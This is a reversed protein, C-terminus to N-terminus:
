FSYFRSTEVHGHHWQTAVASLRLRLESLSLHDAPGSHPLVEEIVFLNRPDDIGEFYDYSKAISLTSSYM